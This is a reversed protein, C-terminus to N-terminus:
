GEKGLVPAECADHCDGNNGLCDPDGVPCGDDEDALAARESDHVYLWCQVMVGDGDCERVPTGEPVEIKDGLSPNCLERAGVRFAEALDASYPGDGGNLAARLVDRVEERDRETAWDSYEFRGVCDLLVQVHPITLMPLQKM